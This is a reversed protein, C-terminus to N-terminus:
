LRGSMPGSLQFAISAAQVSGTAVTPNVSTLFGRAELRKGSAEDMRFQFSRDDNPEFISNLLDAGPGDDPDLLVTASGSSGFLGRVYTRSNGGVCTDELADVNLTISFERIKAVKRGEYLLAGSAGTLTAM